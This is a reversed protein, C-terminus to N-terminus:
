PGSRPPIGPCGKRPEERSGFRAMPAGHPGKEPRVVVGAVCRDQDDMQQPDGRKGLAGRADELLNEQTFVEKEEGKRRAAARPRM